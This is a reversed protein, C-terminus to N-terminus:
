DFVGICSLAGNAFSCSASRVMQVHQHPSRCWRLQHDWLALTALMLRLSIKLLMWARTKTRQAPFATWSHSEVLLTEHRPTGGFVEPPNVINQGCMKTGLIENILDIISFGMIHLTTTQVVRNHQHVYIIFDFTGSLFRTLSCCRTRLQM